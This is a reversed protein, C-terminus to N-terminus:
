VFKRGCMPCYNIKVPDPCIGVCGDYYANAYLVTEDKRHEIYSYCGSFQNGCDSDILMKNKVKRCYECGQMKVLRELEM